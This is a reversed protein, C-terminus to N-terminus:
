TCTLPLLLSLWLRWFQAGIWLAKMKVCFDEWLEKSHAGFGVSDEEYRVVRRLITSPAVLVGFEWAIQGYGPLQTQVPSVLTRV